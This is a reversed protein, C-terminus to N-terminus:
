FWVRRRKSRVEAKGQVYEPRSVLAAGELLASQIERVGARNRSERLAYFEVSMGTSGSDVAKRIAPTVAAAVQISGDPRRVPMARTEVAGEHGVKLGIGDSGWRLSGPAFVEPLGSAVRGEQILTGHLRPGDTGDRIELNGGSITSIDM